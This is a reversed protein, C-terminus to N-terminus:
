IFCKRPKSGEAQMFLLRDEKGPTGYSRPLTSEHINLLNLAQPLMTPYNDHGKAYEEKLGNKLKAYQKSDVGNIFLIAQIKESVRKIAIKREDATPNDPDVAGALELETTGARGQLPGWNTEVPKVRGQFEKLYEANKMEQQMCVHVCRKAQAMVHVGQINVNFQCCIGSILLLLECVNQLKEMDDKGSTDGLKTILAPSCQGKTLAYAQKGANELITKKDSAREYHHFWICKDFEDAGIHKDLVTINCLKDRQISDTIDPGGKTYEGHIYNAIAKEAEM